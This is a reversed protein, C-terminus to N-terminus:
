VTKNVARPVFFVIGLLYRPYWVSLLTCASSDAFTEADAWLTAGLRSGLLGEDEDIQWTVTTDGCGVAHRNTDTPTDRGPRGSDRSDREETLVTPVQHTNM